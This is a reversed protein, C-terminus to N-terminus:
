PGLSILGFLCTEAVAGYHIETALSMCAPIHWGGFSEVHWALSNEQLIKCLWATLYALATAEQVGVLLFGRAFTQSCMFNCHFLRQSKSQHHKGQCASVCPSDQPWGEEGAHKPKRSYQWRPLAAARESLLLLLRWRGKLYWSQSEPRRISQKGAKATTQLLPIINQNRHFPWSSTWFITETNVVPSPSLNEPM